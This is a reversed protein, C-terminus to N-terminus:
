PYKELFRLRMAMRVNTFVLNWAAERKEAEEGPACPLEVSFLYSANGEVYERDGPYVDIPYGKVAVLECGCDKAAEAIVNIDGGYHESVMWFTVKRDGSM